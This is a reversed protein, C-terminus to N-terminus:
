AHSTVRKFAKSVTTRKEGISDAYEKLSVWKQPTAERGAIYEQQRKKWAETTKPRGPKRAPQKCAKRGTEQREADFDDSGTIVNPGAIPEGTAGAALLEISSLSDSVDDGSTELLIALRRLEAAVAGALRYSVERLEDARQERVRKAHVVLKTTRARQRADLETDKRIDFIDDRWHNERRLAVAMEDRWGNFWATPSQEDTRSPEM